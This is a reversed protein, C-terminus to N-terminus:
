AFGCGGWLLAGGAWRLLHRIGLGNEEEDVVTALEVPGRLRHGSRRIAAMAEAAAALGGLMDASGRGYLRGDRLTGPALGPTWGEGLPVVDSHGLLLLGPADGGAMGAHLNPRGPAVEDLESDLGRETCAARLVEARAGEEGPPNVGPVAVLSRALDVMADPDLLDLVAREEAGVTPPRGEVV